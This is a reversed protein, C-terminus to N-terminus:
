GEVDLLCTECLYRPFWWGRRYSARLGTFDGKCVRCRRAADSPQCRVYSNRRAVRKIEAAILRGGHGRGPMAAHCFVCLTVLNTLSHDPERAREVIHHVQLNKTRGCKTCQNRDRALVRRRMQAWDAPLGPSVFGRRSGLRRKCWRLLIRRARRPLAWAVGLLYLGVLLIIGVFRWPLAALGFLVCVVTGARAWSWQRSM